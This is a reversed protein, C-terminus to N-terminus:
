DGTLGWDTGLETGLPSTIPPRDAGVKGHRPAQRALVSRLGGLHWRGGVAAWRQGTRAGGWEWARMGLRKKTQNREWDGALFRSGQLRGDRVHPRTSRLDVSTVARARARGTKERLSGQAAAAVRRTNRALAGDQAETWFEGAQDQCKLADQMGFGFGM